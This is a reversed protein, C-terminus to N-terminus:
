RNADLVHRRKGLRSRRRFSGSEVRGHRSTHTRAHTFAHTALANRFLLHSSPSPVLSARPWGCFPVASPIPCLETARWPVAGWVTSSSRRARAGDGQAVFRAVDERAKGTHRPSASARQPKLPCPARFITADTPIPFAM